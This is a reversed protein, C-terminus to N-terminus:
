VFSVCVLQVDEEELLAPEVVGGVASPATSFVVNGTYAVCGAGIFGYYMPVPVLFAAEHAEARRREEPTLLPAKGKARAKADREQRRKFKERRSRQLSESDHKRHWVFVANHDSPHTAALLDERAPPILYSKQAGYNNVLRSLRQGITKGPLPCGCHTYPMNYRNKWARCTLDFASSLTEEAVKDDHDIYRGVYTMCDNHYTDSLLQHTHWALDIDLTPVYFSASSASMLDLFAHYRAISHQLAVEDENSDFFHPQTWQLEHMKKVFSGQRVVAGVLEVSFMYDNQYASIIRTILIGGRVRMRAAITLRMQDLDYKNAELMSVVWTEATADLPREFAVARLVSDRVLSGRAHDAANQNTRITGALGPPYENVGVATRALDEALKRAGLVTRTIKPVDECGPDLCKVRFNEQLFGTGEENMYDVSLSKRCKPCLVQRSHHVEADQAPDFHRGTRSTWSELRAETPESTLIEELDSSFSDSFVQTFDKLGRLGYVRGCDEAYWGPNLMYAHWVMLVDVPPLAEAAHKSSDKQQLSKCWISFREVALAIFWGWCRDKTKPLFPIENGEAYLGDIRTKLTAFAYLLALHNKVQTSTILPANTRKVGIAFTQPFEYSPPPGIEHSKGEEYNVSINTTAKDNDINHASNEHTNGKDDPYKVSKDTTAKDSDALNYAPPVELDM